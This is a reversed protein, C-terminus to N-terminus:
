DENKTSRKLISAFSKTQLPADESEDAEGESLLSIQEETVGLILEKDKYRVVAVSQRNGLMLRGTLHPGYANSPGMMGKIGFRKLLYYALYIVGLLLCLYGATTLITAGSDVVPLQM